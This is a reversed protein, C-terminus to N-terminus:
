KWMELEKEISFILYLAYLMLVWLMLFTLVSLGLLINVSGWVVNELIGMLMVVLTMLLVIKENKKM